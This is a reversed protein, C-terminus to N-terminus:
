VSASLFLFYQYKDVLSSASDFWLRRKKSEIIAQRFHLKLCGSMCTRAVRAAILSVMETKGLGQRLRSLSVLSGIGTARFSTPSLAM